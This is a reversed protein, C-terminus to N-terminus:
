SAKLWGWLRAVQKQQSSACFVKEMDNGGVRLRQQLRAECAKRGDVNSVVVEDGSFDVMYHYRPADSSAEHGFKSYQAKTAVCQQEAIHIGAREFIAGIMAQKQQCVEASDTNVFSVANQGAGNTTLLILLFLTNM